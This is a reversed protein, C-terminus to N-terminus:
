SDSQLHLRYGIGSETLIYQPDSPDIELKHRLNSMHVQILHNDAICNKNQIHNWLQQHTIVKGAHNILIRLLEYETPTLSIEQGRIEVSQTALDVQLDGNAFIPEYCTSLVHRLAVRMRAMLEGMRFPKVIYDDAGSDLAEVKDIDRDHVSIILIPIESWQRISKIIEIGNLDPLGIDLLILDPQFNAIQLIGEQGTAAGCVCYAHANLTTRLFRRVGADDDIVLVRIEHNNEPIEQEQNTKYVM